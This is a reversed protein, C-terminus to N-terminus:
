QKTSHNSGHGDTQGNINSRKDRPRRSRRLPQAGSSRWFQSLCTLLIGGSCDSRDHQSVTRVVTLALFIGTRPNKGRTRHRQKSKISPSHLVREQSRVSSIKTETTDRGGVSSKTGFPFLQMQDSSKGKGRKEPISSDEGKTPPPRNSRIVRATTEAFDSRFVSLFGLNPAIPCGM